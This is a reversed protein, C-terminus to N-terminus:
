DGDDRLHGPAVGLVECEERIALEVEDVYVSPRWNRTGFDKLRGIIITAKPEKSSGEEKAQQSGACLGADVIGAVLLLSIWTYHKM